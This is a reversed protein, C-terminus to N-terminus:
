RLEHNEALQEAQDATYSFQQRIRRIIEEKPLQFEKCLEIFARIGEERGAAREEEAWEQIAQCMDYREEEEMRKYEQRHEWLYATNLIVSVAELTDAEVHRYAPDQKLLEELRLRDRRYKMATFLLRLETHFCSFDTIENICFLRLPYDAFYRSMGDEESGFSVMERLSRPGDWKEDGHYLCLTYIPVLRDTKRIRCLREAVNAYNQKQQNTRRLASLQKEYELTDYQMCRFPMSYDVHNQNEIALMRLLEGSQMRMKIDRLRWMNGVAYQESSETLDSGQIHREGKFCVANFLDAFRETDSLYRYLVQNLKGM